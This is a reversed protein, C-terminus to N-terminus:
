HIGTMESLYLILPFCFFNKKEQSSVEKPNVRKIAKMYLM